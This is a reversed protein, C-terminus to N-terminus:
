QMSLRRWMEETSMVNVEFSAAQWMQALCDDCVDFVVFAGVSEFLTVYLKKAVTSNVVIGERSLGIQFLTDIEVMDRWHKQLNYRADM